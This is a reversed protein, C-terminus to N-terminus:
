EQKIPVSGTGKLRWEEDYISTYTVELRATNNGFMGGLAQVMEPSNTITFLAFEEGSKIVRGRYLNGYFYSKRTSDKALLAEWKVSDPLYMQQYWFNHHDMAYIKGQYHVKVDKVFAPGTGNNILLLRYNDGGGTNWLELYPLVSAYQQKQMLHTQYFIALVSAVSVLLASVGLLKEANWFKKPPTATALPPPQAVPENPDPQEMPLTQALKVFALNANKAWFFSTVGLLPLM